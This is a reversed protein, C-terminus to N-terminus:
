PSKETPIAPRRLSPPGHAIMDVEGRVGEVAGRLAALDGRARSLETSVTTLTSAQEHSRAELSDARQQLAEAETKLAQHLIWGVLGILGMGGIAFATMVVLSTEFDNMSAQELQRKGM